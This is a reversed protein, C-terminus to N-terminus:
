VSKIFTGVIALITGGVIPALNGTLEGAVIPDLYHQLVAVVFAGLAFRAGIAGLVRVREHRNGHWFTPAMSILHRM